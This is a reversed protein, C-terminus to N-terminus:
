RPNAGPEALLGALFDAVWFLFASRRRPLAGLVQLTWLSVAQLVPTATNLSDAHICQRQSGAGHVFRQRRVRDSACPAGGRRRRDSGGALRARSRIAAL